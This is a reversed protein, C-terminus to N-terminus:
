LRHLTLLTLCSKAVLSWCCLAKLADAPTLIPRPLCNLGHCSGSPYRCNQSCVSKARSALDPIHQTVWAGMMKDWWSLKNQGEM